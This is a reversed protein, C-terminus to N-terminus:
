EVVFLEKWYRRKKVTQHHLLRLSQRAFIAELEGRKFYSHWYIKSPQGAATNVYIDRYVLDAKALLNDYTEELIILRRSVRQMEALLQQPHPTHHLVFTCVVCDFTKDQFPFRKGDYLQVREKNAAQRNTQIELITLDFGAKQMFGAFYGLGNGVKLVSGQLFPQFQEFWQKEQSRIYQQIGSQKM